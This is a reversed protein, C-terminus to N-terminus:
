DGEKELKIEFESLKDEDTEIFLLGGEDIVMGHKMGRAIKGTLQIIEASKLSKVISGKSHDCGILGFGANRFTHVDDGDNLFSIAEIASIEVPKLEEIVNSM